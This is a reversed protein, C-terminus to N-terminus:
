RLAKFIVQCSSVSLNLQEVPRAKCGFGNDESPEVMIVEWSAEVGSHGILLFKVSSLDALIGPLIGGEGGM